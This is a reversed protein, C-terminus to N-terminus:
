CEKSYDPQCKQYTSTQMAAVQAHIESIQARMTDVEGAAGGVSDPSYASMQHSATRLKPANSQKNLGFHNRMKDEKSAQRDEETCISVVLEAFSPPNTKKKELQLSAILGNDWCGRCFQKILCRNQESEAIAGSRVTTSLMVQLRHLYSSPKEGPNQLMTMFKALLEDGDEM